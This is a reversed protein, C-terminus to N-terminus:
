HRSPMKGDKCSGVGWSVFPSRHTHLCLTCHNINKQVM